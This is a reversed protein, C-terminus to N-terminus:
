ELVTYLYHKDGEEPNDSLHNHSFADQEKTLVFLVNLLVGSVTEKEVLLWIKKIM